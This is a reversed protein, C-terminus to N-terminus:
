YYYNATLSLVQKVSILEDQHADSLDNLRDYLRESRTSELALEDEWKKRNAKLHSQLLFL